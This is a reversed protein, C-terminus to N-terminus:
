EIGFAFLAKNKGYVAEASALVSKVLAVSKTLDSSEFGHFSIAESLEQLTLYSVSPFHRLGAKIEAPFWDPIGRPPFLPNAEGSIISLCGLFRRDYSHAFGYDGFLDWISVSGSFAAVDEEVDILIYAALYRGM